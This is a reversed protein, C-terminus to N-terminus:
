GMLICGGLAWCIGKSENYEQLEISECLELIVPRVPTLVYFLSGNSAYSVTDTPSFCSSVSPKLPSITNRRTTLPTISAHQLYFPSNHERLGTEWRNVATLKGKNVTERKQTATTQQERDSCLRPQLACFISTLAKGIHEQRQKFKLLPEDPGRTM